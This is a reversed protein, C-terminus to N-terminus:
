VLEHCMCDCPKDLVKNEVADKMNADLELGCNQCIMEECCHEYDQMDEDHFPIYTM